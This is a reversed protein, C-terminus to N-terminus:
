NRPTNPFAKDLARDLAAQTWGYAAKFTVECAGCDFAFVRGFDELALADGSWIGRADISSYDM